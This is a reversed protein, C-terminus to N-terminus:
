KSNKLFDLSRQIEEQYFTIENEKNEIQDLLEKYEDEILVENALIAAGASIASILLAVKRRLSYGTKELVLDNWKIIKAATLSFISINFGANRLITGNKTNGRNYAQAASIKLKLLESRAVELDESITELNNIKKDITKRILSSTNQNAHVLDCNIATSALLIISLIFKM